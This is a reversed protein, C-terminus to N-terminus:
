TNYSNNNNNNINNKKKLYIIKNILINKIKFFNFKKINKIIKIIKNKM